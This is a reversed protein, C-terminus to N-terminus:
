RKSMGSRSREGRLSFPAKAPAGDRPLIEVEDM